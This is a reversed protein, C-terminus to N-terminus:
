QMPGVLPIGSPPREEDVDQPLRDELLPAFRSQILDRVSLRLDDSKKELQRNLREVLQDRKKDLQNEVVRRLPRGLIESPDRGLDSIRRVNFEVLEIEAAVVRPVLQLDPPLKALDWEIGLECDATFRM